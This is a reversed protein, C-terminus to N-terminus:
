QRSCKMWHASYKNSHVFINPWGQFIITDDTRIWQRRRNRSHRHATDLYTISSRCSRFAPFRGSTQVKGATDVLGQRKWVGKRRGRVVMATRRLGGAEGWQARQGVHGNIFPSRPGTDRVGECRRAEFSMAVAAWRSGWQKQRATRRASHALTPWSVWQCSWWWWVPSGPWRCGRELMVAVLVVVAYHHWSRLQNHSPM